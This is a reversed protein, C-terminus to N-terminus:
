EAKQYKMKEEAVKLAEIRLQEDAIEYVVKDSLWAIILEDENVNFYGALKVVQERTAKRQGRELRSM